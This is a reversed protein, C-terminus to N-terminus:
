RRLATRGWWARQGRATRQRRKPAASGLPAVNVVEGSIEEFARPGLRALHKVRQHESFGERLVAFSRPILGPPQTVLAARGGKGDM